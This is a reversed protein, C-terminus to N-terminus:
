KTVEAPTPAETVSKGFIVASPNRELYDALLQITQAARGLEQLARRLDHDLPSGPAILTNANGATQEITSLTRQTQALTTDVQGALPAVVGDLRAVLARAEGMAANLSQVTGPLKAIAQKIAPDNVLQNIGQLAESAEQVMPGFKIARLENIIERAATTAQELTTETTPVEPPDSPQPLIYSEPTDPFFDVQVFLLGTLLSQTQLQARLGRQVLEALTQVNAIQVSKDGFDIKSPDTEVYVPISVQRDTSSPAIVLKIDTVTGFEVGRFKVPAGISLGNISGPFFMVWRNTTKFFRGSGFVLVGAVALALAGLVFAGVVAPNAKKGM